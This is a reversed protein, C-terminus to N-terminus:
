CETCRLSELIKISLCEALSAILNRIEVAFICDRCKEDEAGFVLSVERIEEADYGYRAKREM